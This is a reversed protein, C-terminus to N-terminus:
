QKMQALATYTHMTSEGPAKWYVNITALSSSTASTGGGSVTSFSVAPPYSSVNPLGSSQVSALWATYGAGAASSGFSAQLTAATRDSLWMRSILDNALSAAIARFRANSADKVSTGQAAVLGLIGIAFIVLAILAELM